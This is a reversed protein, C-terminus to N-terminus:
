VNAYKEQAADFIKKYKAQKNKFLIPNNRLKRLLKQKRILETNLYYSHFFFKCHPCKLGIDTIQAKKIRQTNTVMDFEKQCNNCVVLNKRKAM